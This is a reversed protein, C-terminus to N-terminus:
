QRNSLGWVIGIEEGQEAVAADNSASLCLRQSRVASPKATPAGQASM